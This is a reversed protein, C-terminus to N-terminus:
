RSCSLFPHFRSKGGVMTFFADEEEMHLLLLGAIFAMGQSYGVEPSYLAFARLVNFLSKQMRASKQFLLNNPFTRRIDKRIMPDFDNFDFSLLHSYINAPLVSRYGDVNAWLKWMFGRDFDSVSKVLRLPQDKGNGLYHYGGEDGLADPGDNCFSVPRFRHNKRKNHRSVWPFRM